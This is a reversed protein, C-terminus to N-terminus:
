SGKSQNQTLPRRHHLIILSHNILEKLKHNKQIPIKNLAPFLKIKKSKIKDDVM